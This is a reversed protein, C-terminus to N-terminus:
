QKIKVNENADKKKLQKPKASIRAALDLQQQAVATCLDMEKTAAGVSESVKSELFVVRQELDHCRDENSDGLITLDTHVRSYVEDLGQSVVSLESKDACTGGM